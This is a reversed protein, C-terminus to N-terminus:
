EKLLEEKILEEKWKYYTSSNKRCFIAPKGVPAQIIVSKGAYETNFFKGSWIHIWQGEPLYLEVRDEGENLVPAFLIDNGIMYEKTSYLYAYEDLPYNIFLARIIPLGNTTSERVLQKRYFYWSRYLRAYFSTKKYTDNNTYFQTSKEPMNGEHTRFVVSMASLAMWRYLLEHDRKFSFFPYDSSVYGGADSHNFQIGSLGSSILGKMASALGDEEYWNQLQDGTWFLPTSKISNSFGSRMFFISKNSRQTLKYNVSAWLNPYNNHAKFPAADVNNSQATLPYGEGFDAMWGSFNNNILNYKIIKQIFNQANPNYLDLIGAKFDYSDHLLTNGSKDKILLDNESAEKFFNHDDKNKLTYDNSLYPNAYGLIKIDKNELSKILKNWDYYNKQDLTWNWWLRQSGSSTQRQGCWDQIWVASAPINYKNFNELIKSVKETGGQIGFVPAKIIWDPLEKMRGNVRTFESIITKIDRAYIIGGEMNPAFSKIQVIEDKRFDFETLHLNNLFVSRLKDTIYFPVPIYTHVDSGSANYGQIFDIGLSLPQKGRGFGKERVLMPIKKGSHDLDSFHEGLGYFKEKEASKYTFYLRNISPNNLKIDFKLIGNDATLVAEYSIQDNNEYLIGKVTISYDSYLIEDVTQDPYVRQIRDSYNFFGGNEQTEMINYSASLFAKGPISSWIIKDPDDKNTVYVYTYSPDISIIFDGLPVAKDARLSTNFHIDGTIQRNLYENYTYKFAIFAAFTLLLYLLFVRNKRILLILM